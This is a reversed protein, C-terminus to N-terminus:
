AFGVFRPASRQASLRIVARRGDSFYPDGTLNRRPEAPTCAGVGDVYGVEDIRQAELLDEVVYDRSEDM